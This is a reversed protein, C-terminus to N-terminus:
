RMVYSTTHLDKNRISFSGAPFKEQSIPENWWLEIGMVKHFQLKSQILLVWQIIGLQCSQSLLAERRIRLTSWCM